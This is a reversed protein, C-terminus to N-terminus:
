ATYGAPIPALAGVNALLREVDSALEEHSATLLSRFAIFVFWYGTAPIRPWRLRLIERLRRRARNREVAGGVSRRSIVFGIRTPEAPKALAVLVCHRGRFGTGEAKVEAFERSSRLVRTRDFRNGGPRVDSDSLDVLHAPLL